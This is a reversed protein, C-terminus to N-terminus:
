QVNGWRVDYGSVADQFTQVNSRIAQQAEESTLEPEVSDFGHAMESLKNEIRSTAIKQEELVRIQQNLSSVADAQQQNILNQERRLRANAEDEYQQALKQNPSAM